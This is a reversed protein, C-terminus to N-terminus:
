ILTFASAVNDDDTVPRLVSVVSMVDERLTGRCASFIDATNEM